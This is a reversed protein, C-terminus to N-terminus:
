GIVVLMPFSGTRGGLACPRPRTTTWIACWAVVVDFKLEDLIFGIFAVDLAM